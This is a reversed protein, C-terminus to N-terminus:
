SYYGSALEKPPMGPASVFGDRLTLGQQSDYTDPGRTNGRNQMDVERRIRDLVSDNSM